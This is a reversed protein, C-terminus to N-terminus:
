QKRLVKWLLETSKLKEYRVGFFVSKVLEDNCRSRHVHCLAVTNLSKQTMTQRLYTKLRRLSSFSREASCSTMPVTFYIKLLRVTEGYISSSSPNKVFAECVSDLKTMSQVNAIVLLRPLLKLECQFKGFDLDSSFMNELVQLKQTMEDGTISSNISGLLLSEIVRLITFASKSSSSRNEVSIRMADLVAFYEKRFYEEMSFQHQNAPREDKRVSIRRERPASVEIGLSASKSQLKQWLESFKEDSRLAALHTICIEFLDQATRADTDKAQLKTAIFDTVSFTETGVTLSFLTSFRLLNFLIGGAKSTVDSPGPTSRIEEMTEILVEYNELISSLADARVTWRTPCLPRLSKSTKLMDHQLKKLASLRKPSLKIFNIIDSCLNLIDQIIRTCSSADQVALQLNHNLCHVFLASPVLSQFRTRVGNMIGSMNAAGDYAQGRCKNINLQCRLLVDKLLEFLSSSDTKETEVFGIFDEFV